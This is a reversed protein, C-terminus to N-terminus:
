CHNYKFSADSQEIKMNIRHCIEKEKQLVSILKRQCAALSQLSSKDLNKERFNTKLNDIRSKGKEPIYQLLKSNWFLM